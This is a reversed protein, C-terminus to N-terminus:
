KPGSRDWLFAPLPRVARLCSELVRLATRGIPVVRQKNGKGLVIVTGNALDADAVNLGLLEGARLGSSYLLDLMARDRFGEAHSTEVQGL